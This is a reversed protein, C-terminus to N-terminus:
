WSRTLDLVQCGTSGPLNKPAGLVAAQKPYRNGDPVTALEKNIEQLRSLSAHAVTCFTLIPLTNILLITYAERAEHEFTRTSCYVDQHGQSDLTAGPLICVM